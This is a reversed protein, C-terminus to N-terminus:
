EKENPRNIGREIRDGFMNRFKKFLTTFVDSENILDMNEVISKLEIIAIFSTMIEALYFGAGFCIVPIAYTAGIFMMYLFLKIVTRKLKKSTVRRIKQQRTKANKLKWDRMIATCLDLSCLFLMLYFLTLIPALFVMFPILIYTYVKTLFM